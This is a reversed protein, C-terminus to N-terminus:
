AARKPKNDNAGSNIPLSGHSIGIDKLLHANLSRVEDRSAVRGLPSVFIAKFARGILRLMSKAAHAIWAGVAVSREYGAITFVAADNAPTDQAVAGIKTSKIDRTM